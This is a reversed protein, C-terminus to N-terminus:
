TAPESRLRLSVEAGMMLEDDEEDEDEEDSPTMIGESGRSEGNQQGDIEEEVFSDEEEDQVVKSKRRIPKRRTMSVGGVGSDSVSAEFSHQDTDEQKIPVHVV